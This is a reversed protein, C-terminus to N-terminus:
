SVEPKNRCNRFNQLMETVFINKLAQAITKRWDKPAKLLAALDVMTRVDTCGMYFGPNLCKSPVRSATPSTMYFRNSGTLEKTIKVMAHYHRTNKDIHNQFTFNENYGQEEEDDLCGASSAVSEKESLNGRDLLWVNTPATISPSSSAM